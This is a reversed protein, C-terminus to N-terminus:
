YHLLVFLIQSVVTSNLNSHYFLDKLPHHISLPSIIPRSPIGISIDGTINDLPHNRSTKWEKPLNDNEQTTDDQDDQDEDDKKRKLNREENQTDEM